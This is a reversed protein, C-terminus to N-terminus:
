ESVVQGSVEIPNTYVWPTWNGLISLEAEVRYKGTETLDMSWETGEAQKMRSGDKILSFRCAQPSACKLSLNPQLPISEGMVARQDPSEALCVFGTADALMDFAIFARGARLSDLIEPETCDRALIHTNVFRCSREYPDLEYRWVETGSQLPGLFVRYILRNWGNLKVEKMIETKEGTGKFVLTNEATVLARIGVNQHADNAAIGTIHRTKNLEDWRALLPSPADFMLRMTQDPFARLNILVDPILGPLNEEMMDAHPNYIEMGDLEPLDWDRPQECHSYFLVAGTERIRPGLDRPTEEFRYVTGEPVGWPMLGSALEYGRIFLIGEFVGNLGLSYDAKGDVYHDTLGIVDVDAIKLARVIDPETMASDHSLESHSHLVARYENWGDDLAPDVRHAQIEAWAMSERPFDVFHRKLAGGFVMLFLLVVALVVVGLFGCGWKLAVKRCGTKMSVEVWGEEPM